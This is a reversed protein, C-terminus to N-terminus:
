KKKEASDSPGPTVKEKEKPAVAPKDTATPATKEVPGNVTSGSGSGARAKALERDKEKAQRAADAAAKRKELNRAAAQREAAARAQAELQLQKQLLLEQEVAYGVGRRRPGPPLSQMIEKKAATVDSPKGSRSQPDKVGAKGPRASPATGPKDAAHSWSSLSFIPVVLAALWLQRTSM